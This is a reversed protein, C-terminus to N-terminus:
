RYSAACEDASAGKTGGLGHKGLARRAIMGVKCAIVVSAVLGLVTMSLMVPDKPPFDDYLSLGLQAAYAYPLNAPVIGVLTTWCYNKQSISTLSLLTNTVVLPALPTVRILLALLPGDAVLAADLAQWRQAHRGLMRIFCGRCVSRTLLLCVYSGLTATITNIIMGWVIGFLLAGVAVLGGSMPVPVVSCAVFNIASYELIVFPNSPNFTVGLITMDAAM